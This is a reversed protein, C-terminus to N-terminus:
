EFNQLFDHEFLPVGFRFRGRVRERALAPAAGGRVLAAKADSGGRAKM